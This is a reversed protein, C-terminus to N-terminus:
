NLRSKALIAEPDEGLFDLAEKEMRELNRITQDTRRMAEHLPIEPGFTAESPKLEPDDELDRYVLNGKPTKVMEPHRLMTDDKRDTKRTLRAWLNLLVM